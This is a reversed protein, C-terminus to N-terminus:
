QQDLHTPPPLRQDLVSLAAVEKRAVRGLQGFHGGASARGLLAAREGDLLRAPKEGHGFRIVEPREDHNTEHEPQPRSFQATEAPAVDVDLTARQM